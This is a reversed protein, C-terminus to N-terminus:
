PARLVFASAASRLTRGDKTLATVSWRYEQGVQLEAAMPGTSTTDSVREEFLVSGSSDVVELRYDVADTVRQWVFLPPATVFANAAPQVTTVGAEGGRMPEDPEHTLSFIWATGAMIVAAAAVRWFVATKWSARPPAGAHMVVRLLEFEQRARPDRLIRTLTRSRESESGRRELVDIMAELSVVEDPVPMRAMAGAYLARLRDDNM